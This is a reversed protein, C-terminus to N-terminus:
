SVLGSCRRDYKRCFCHIFNPRSNLSEACQSEDWHLCKRQGVCDWFINGEKITKCDTESECIMHPNSDCLATCCEAYSHCRRKIICQESSTLEQWGVPYQIFPNVFPTVLPSFYRPYLISGRRRNCPCANLGEEPKGDVCARLSRASTICLCLIILVALANQFRGSNNFCIRWSATNRPHRRFFM